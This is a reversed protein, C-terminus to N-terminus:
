QVDHEFVIVTDGVAIRDLDSLVHEAVPRGNVRTGFSSGLDTLRYAGERWEIKLHEKSARDDSLALTSSRSRGVVVPEGALALARGRDGGEAVYLRAPQAEGAALV